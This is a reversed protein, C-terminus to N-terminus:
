LTAEAPAQSLVLFLCTTRCFQFLVVFGSGLAVGFSFHRGELREKRYSWAFLIGWFIAPSFVLLASM